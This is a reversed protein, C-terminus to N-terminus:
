PAHFQYDVPIDLAELLEKPEEDAHMEIRIQDVTVPGCGGAFITIRGMGSGQGYSYLDSGGYAYCPSLSGHSYPFAWIRVGNHEDTSYDFSVNVADFFHPAAPSPPDLVGPSLSSGVSPTATLTPTPAALGNTILPLEIKYGLFAPPTRTLTPTQAPTHTVAPTRPTATRTVGPTQATLTRTVTPTRPTVTPSPTQTPTPTPIAEITACAENSPWSEGMANVAKVVYCYPTGVSLGNDEYTTANASADGIHEGNRYVAFGSEDSAADDWALAIASMLAPAARLNYPAAPPPRRVTFTAPSSPLSDGYSNRAKVEWTYDGPSLLGLPWTTSAIWDSTRDFGAGDWIHAYYTTAGSVASWSLTVDSDWPLTAGSPSQPAPSEPACGAVPEWGLSVSAAGGFERYDVRLEHYGRDLHRVATENGSSNWNDIVKVGDIWLVGGDDHQLQFRYDGCEFYVQREFKASFNDAPINWGPGGDGWNHSLQGTGESRSVMADWRQYTNLWYSAFWEREHGTRQEQPVEFGPGSFWATIWASGLTDAFDVRLNHTGAALDSRFLV